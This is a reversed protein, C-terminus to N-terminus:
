GARRLVNRGRKSQWDLTKIVREVEASRCIECLKEGSRANEPVRRFFARGCEFGECVKREILDARDPEQMTPFSIDRSANGVTYTFM